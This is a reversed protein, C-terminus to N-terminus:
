IVNGVTSNITCSHASTSAGEDPPLHLQEILLKRSHRKIGFHNAVPRFPVLSYACSLKLVRLFASINKFEAPIKSPECGELCEISLINDCVTHLMQLFYENEHAVCNTSLVITTAHERKRLLHKLKMMFITTLARRGNISYDSSGLPFYRDIGGFGPMFIRCPRGIEAEMGDQIATQRCSSSFNGIMNYIAGLFTEFDSLQDDEPSIICVNAETLFQEQLRLSVMYIILIVDLYIILIVDTDYFYRKSIDFSHCYRSKTSSIPTSHSSAKTAASYVM